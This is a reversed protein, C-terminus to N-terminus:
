DAVGDRFGCSEPGYRGADVVFWTGDRAVDWTAWYWRLVNAGSHSEVLPGLVRKGVVSLDIVLCM